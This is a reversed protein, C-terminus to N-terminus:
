VVMLKRLESTVENQTFDVKAAGADELARRQMKNLNDAAKLILPLLPRLEGPLPPLGGADRVVTAGSGPDTQIIRKNQLKERIERPRIRHEAPFDLWDIGDMAQRYEDRLEQNLLLTECHKSRSALLAADCYFEFTEGPKEQVLYPILVYVFAERGDWPFVQEDELHSWRKQCVAFWASLLSEEWAPHPPHIHDPWNNRDWRYMSIINGDADMPPGPPPNLRTQYRATVERGAALAAANEASVRVMEDYLELIKEKTRYSGYSAEDKRKVIPFTEMIYDVDDRGIGYLHFYAADLECRILFRREENWRFPPGHYGCERAFPELDWATYTLELVRPSLLDGLSGAPAWPAPQQYTSPPLVPLQNIIFFTLHTGGVKFRAVFDLVFSSLNTMLLGALVASKNNLSMIPATHGVGVLPLVSAIVTREDTSRAIDRWGLLWGPARNRIINEVAELANVSESIALLDDSTMPFNKELTKLRLRDDRLTGVPLLVEGPLRYDIGRNAKYGAVWQALLSRVLGEDGDVWARALASPVSAARALVEKEDVWFRPMAQF